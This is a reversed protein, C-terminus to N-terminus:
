RGGALRKRLEDALYQVRTKTQAEVAQTAEELLRENRAFFEEIDIEAGKALTAAKAGCYFAAMEAARSETTTVNIEFLNWFDALRM